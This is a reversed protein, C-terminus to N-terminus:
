REQPSPKPDDTPRVTNNITVPAGEFLKMQGATAVVDGEKLGTLVAVQDGRTPGTTVFVQRAILNPRSGSGKQKDEIVYATSGYSNYSIATQPVTLLQQPSGADIEVTAFMGPLLRGDANDLVARAQFTRSATDVKPSIATIRGPFRLDKWADTRAQLSQGVAVNAVAQQPLPFDVYIPDLAQLTVVTTGAALYQGLDVKRIGLRGDFPARLRKKEIIAKQQAVQAVNNKLTASDSDLTAQSVTQIQFQRVSREYNIKAIQASAELSHLKAIDDDALLRLLVQGEKVTDGSEFDITQVMGPLELSLDTGKSARLSGVAEINPQWTDMRVTATSITQPPFGGSGARRAAMREAEFARLGYLGGVLIAFGILVGIARKVM